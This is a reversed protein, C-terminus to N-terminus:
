DFIGGILSTAITGFIQGWGRSSDASEQLDAQLKTIALRNQRDQENETSKWLYDLLSDSRDWLRNLQEAGVGVMNKVDTAAAEFEMQAETLTVTQRWQANALDVNYQMNKYFEERQNELTANFQAMNNIADRNSINMQQQQAANFQSMNNQASVNYQEIQTNLQDYFKNLENQSEAEFMRQTNVAKADELISQVRAQTNIMEAQQRNNLNALDMDMFAKSNQVAAALRSDMNALDMNALVNAKNIISAQKNNLNQLTLTQFFNADQAAVTTSAELLAQSLAATAATGTMGSFAAIKQVNRAAGAAWAPITPNGDGDVFESQLIDLQGKLTAKPDVSNLDQNAYDNLAKGVENEGRGTAETDIQPADIIANPNVVGQAANMQGNQTVNQQTTQADYGVAQRPDVKNAQAVNEVLAADAQAANQRLRGADMAYNSADLNTGAANYDINPVKNSLLMEESFFSSPDGALQGGWDVVNIQGPANSNAQGPVVQFTDPNTTATPVTNNNNIVPTNTTAVPINTTPINTTATSISNIVKDLNEKILPGGVANINGIVNTNIPNGFRDFVFNDM